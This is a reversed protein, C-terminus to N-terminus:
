ENEIDDVTELSATSTPATLTLSFSEYSDCDSSVKYNQISSLIDLSNQPTTFSNSSKIINKNLINNEDVPTNSFNCTEAKLTTSKKSDSTLTDPVSPASVSAAQVTTINKNNTSSTTAIQNIGFNM